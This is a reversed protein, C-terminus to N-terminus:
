SRKRIQTSRSYSGLCNDKVYEKGGQNTDRNEISSELYENQNREGHM